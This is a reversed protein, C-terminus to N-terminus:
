SNIFQIYNMFNNYLVRQENLIHKLEKNLRTYETKNVFTYSYKNKDITYNNEMHKFTKMLESYKMLNEQTKSMYETKYQIYFENSNVFENNNEFLFKDFNVNLFQNKFSEESEMTIM